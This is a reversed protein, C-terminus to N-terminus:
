LRSDYNNDEEMSRPLLHDSYIDIEFYDLVRLMQEIERQDFYRRWKSLQAELGKQFTAQKTTSSADRLNKFVGVPPSMDWRDFICQLEKEPNLLLNEYYITMWDKAHRKHKLVVKNNICWTAVIEEGKTKLTSLFSEHRKFIKSYRGNPIEYDEFEDNWSGEKMQSAAIAFPHRLLFVPTLEFHFKDLIWPLLANARVFKIIMRDATVFRVPFERSALWFNLYEGKFLEEFTEKAAEWKNHQPIYQRWGFGLERFPKVNRVHLPEWLNATDPLNSILEMLWTSGSRPYSFILINKEPEFERVPDTLRCLLDLTATKLPYLKQRIEEEM